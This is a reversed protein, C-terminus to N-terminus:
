RFPLTVYVNEKNESDAIASHSAECDKCTVHKCHVEQRRLVKDVENFHMWKNRWKVRECYECIILYIVDLLGKM